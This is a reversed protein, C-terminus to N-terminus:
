IKPPGDTWSDALEKVYQQRRVQAADLLMRGAWRYVNNNRVQMRMQKMRETQEITPMMLAKHIADAIGTENYPNVILAETLERAAGAFKSLILVGLEDDRAAVFEKAVLNMGDHLSNVLCVDAAKYLEQVEDAEHHRISLRIPMYGTGAYRGNLQAAAAEVEEHLRRYNPLKDRSPAAAQIFTFRGIWEPYRDLMNGIANIRETIGKTYDLREVGVGIRMDAPLSHAARVSRAPPQIPAVGGQPWNISIPYARVLTRRGDQLVSSGERDIRCEVFRDVSDLFNACHHRTHFGLITSSLLGRLIEERWPCIGFAEPNPWPIHWFTIITAQPLFQRIMQPVLALHYDQVLVIPDPRTAERVVASAFKRNIAEYCNWDTDRFQPRVFAIHCLPWLGENAFGYYYGEQDEETLWIRRLLYGPADPPVAVRDNRDVVQRDATGSGHAIWTGGCARIVPELASVLGSAPKQVVIQGDELNHIYPERNSVVIIDSGPLESSHLLRLTAPSWDLHLSSEQDYGLDRRISNILTRLAARQSEDDLPDVKVYNSDNM